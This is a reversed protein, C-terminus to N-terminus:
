KNMEKLEGVVVTQAGYDGSVVREWTIIRYHNPHQPDYTM